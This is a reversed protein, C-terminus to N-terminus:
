FVLLGVLLGAVVGGLGFYLRQRRLSVNELEVAELQKDTKDWLAVYRAYADANFRIISDKNAIINQLLISKRDLLQYMSDAFVLENVSKICNKYQSHKLVWLTDFNAPVDLVPEGPVVPIPFVTEQAYALFSM